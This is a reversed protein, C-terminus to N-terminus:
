YEAIDAFELEASSYEYTSVEESACYDRLNSPAVEDGRPGEYVVTVRDDDVDVVVAM